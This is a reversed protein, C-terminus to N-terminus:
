WKWETDDFDSTSDPLLPADDGAAHGAAAAEAWGRRPEAVPSIVIEDGRLELEVEPGLGAEEILPKPIRIGRSNGIRVLRAKVSGGPTHTIVIYDSPLSPHLNSM